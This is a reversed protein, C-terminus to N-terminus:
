ILHGLGPKNLRRNVPRLRDEEGLIDAQQPSFHTQLPQGGHGAGLVTGTNVSSGVNPSTLGEAGEKGKKRKTSAREAGFEGQCFKPEWCFVPHNESCLCISQTTTFLCPPSLGGLDQSLGPKWVWPLTSRVGMYTLVGGMCPESCCTENLDPGM